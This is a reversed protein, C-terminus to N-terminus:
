LSAVEAEASATTKKMKMRELWPEIRAKTRKPDEQAVMSQIALGKLVASGPM